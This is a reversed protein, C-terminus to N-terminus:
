FFLKEWPTVHTYNSEKEKNVWALIEPFRNRILKLKEDDNM